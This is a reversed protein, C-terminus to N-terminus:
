KLRLTIRLPSEKTWVIQQDETDPGNKARWADLLTQRAQENREESIREIITDSMAEPVNDLSTKDWQELLTWWEDGKLLAPVSFDFHDTSPLRICIEGDWDTHTRLVLEEIRDVTKEVGTKPPEPIAKRVDDTLRADRERVREILSGNRM